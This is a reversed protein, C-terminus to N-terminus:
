KNLIQRKKKERFEERERMVKSEKTVGTLKQQTMMDLTMNFWIEDIQILSALIQWTKDFSTKTPDFKDLIAWVQRFHILTTWVQEFHNKETM